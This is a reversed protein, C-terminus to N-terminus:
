DLMFAVCVVKVVAVNVVQVFAMNILMHDCNVGAM